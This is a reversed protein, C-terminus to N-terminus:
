SLVAGVGKQSWDVDLIFPLTFDPRILIPATALKLRLAEFANQRTATWVFPEEKKTLEFLPVAIIAYDRIYIRYYGTIGLFSRINTVNKPVPFQMIAEVKLPSLACGDRSVSHGLFLLEIFGFRCKDPNLRLQAQYLKQLVREIHRLHEDWGRSHINVDDVFVKCMENLDDELVQNIIRQFTAIVNKLGFPMVTWEYLGRKTIIATKKIDLEHM